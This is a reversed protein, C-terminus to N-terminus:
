NLYITKGFEFVRLTTAFLASILILTHKEDLGLCFKYQSNNSLFSCVSIFQSLTSVNGDQLTFFLVQFTYNIVAPEVEGPVFLIRALSTYGSDPVYHVKQQTVELVAGSDCVKKTFILESFTSRGKDIVNEM